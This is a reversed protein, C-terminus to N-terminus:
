QSVGEAGAMESLAILIANVERLPVLHAHAMDAPLLAHVKARLDTENLQPYCGRAATYIRKRIKVQEPTPEPDQTAPVPPPSDFDPAPPPPTWERIAQIVEPLRELPCEISKEYGLSRLASAAIGTWLDPELGHAAAAVGAAQKIEARGTAGICPAPEPVAAVPAAAPEPEDQATLYKEEGLEGMYIEAAVGIVSLAKTLGDTVAKKYADEDVIRKGDRTHYLMATQGIYEWFAAMRGEGLRVRVQVCADIRDIVGDSNPFEERWRDMIEYQWGIGVPGFVSTMKEWCAQPKASDGKYPKGTIAKVHKLDIHALAKWTALKDQADSM